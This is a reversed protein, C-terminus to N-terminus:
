AADLLFKEENAEEEAGGGKQAQETVIFNKHSFAFHFLCGGVCVCACVCKRVRRASRIFSRLLRVFVFAFCCFLRLAAFSVTISSFLLLCAGIFTGVRLAFFFASIPFFRSSASLSFSLSVLRRLM